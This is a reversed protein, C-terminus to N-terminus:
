FLDSLSIRCVILMFSKTLSISPVSSFSFCLIEDRVTLARLHAIAAPIRITAAVPLAQLEDDGKSSSAPTEQSAM